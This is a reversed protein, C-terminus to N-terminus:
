ASGTRLSEMAALSKHLGYRKRQRGLERQITRAAEQAELLSAGVITVVKSAAPRAALDLPAPSYAGQVMRSAIAVAHPHPADQPWMVRLAAHLDHGSAICKSRRDRWEGELVAKSARKPYDSPNTSGCFAGTYLQYMIDCVMERAPIMAGPTRGDPTAIRKKM